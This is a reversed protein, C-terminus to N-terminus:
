AELPAPQGPANVHLRLDAAEARARARAVGLQEVPDDSDRLGATDLLTVLQGAVECRVEIVDRTTGPIATVLAADRRSLANLLSSKGVNPPGILAIAFGTRIGAAAEAGALEAGISDRVAQAAALGAELTGDAIGEDAFDIAAEILARAEVLRGRWAEAARSLAGDLGTLAQLRQAESEADILDALAEVQPLSLRGNDLAQRTFAGPEAPTLRGDGGLAQLVARLVAPSGHLHLEVTPEGTFSAGGAFGAVLAEDLAAGTAPEVLKRLRMRRDLPVSAGLRAAASAAAPGSIRVVSVAARGPASALAFITTL